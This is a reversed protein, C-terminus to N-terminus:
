SLGGCWEQKGRMEQELSPNWHTHVREAMATNDDVRGYYYSKEVFKIDASVPILFLTFVRLM